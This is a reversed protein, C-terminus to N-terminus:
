AYATNILWALYAVYSGLMLSGEWRNIKNGTVIIPFCLILAFFTVPIDVYISQDPVPIGGTVAATSGLVALINSMNSGIINGVAIDKEGRVTAVLCTILEPLSTGVSVITLGIILESIGLLRALKISGDVFLQSGYTLGLLGGIVMLICVVVSGRSVPPLGTPLDVLRSFNETELDVPLEGATPRAAAQERAKRERERLTERRGGRIQLGIYGALFVLFAIGEWRSLNRDFAVLLLLVGTVVILLPVDVKVIQSKVSLPSVIACLGLVVLLNMTNSGVANGVALDSAGTIGSEICIAIEPSSTGLAVVTLGVVLPTMGLVLALRSAGRVLVEAGAVLLVFGGIILLAIEM